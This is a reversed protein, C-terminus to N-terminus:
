QVRMAIVNSPESEVEGSLATAVFYWTAPKLGEVVYRTLGPNNLTVSFPYHGESHGWYIRYGTLKLPTGDDNRTPPTWSLTPAGKATTVGSLGGGAGAGAQAPPATPAATAPTTAAASGGDGGGGCAALVASMLTAAAVLRGNRVIDRSPGRNRMPEYM